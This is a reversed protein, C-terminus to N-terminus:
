MVSKVVSYCLVSEPQTHGLQICIEVIDEEQISAADSLTGDGRTLVLICMHNLLDVEDNPIQDQAVSATVTSTTSM